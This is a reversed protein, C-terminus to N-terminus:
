LYYCQTLLPIIEDSLHHSVLIVTLEPDSLLRKEIEISNKQDLASTAEDMVIIKKHQILARAIAIRQKQGGSITKASEGIMTELGADLGQIFASLNCRELVEKLLTESVDEFLTINDKISAQFLYPSQEIYAINKLLDEADWDCIDEHDVFVHGKECPLIKLLIKLITTKGCGSEGLVAYKNGIKFEASFDKFVTKEGYTFALHQIVIGAQIRKQTDTKILVERQKDAHKLLSKSARFKLTSSVVTIASSYFMGTLNGQSLLVGASVYKMGILVATVFTSGLQCLIGMYDVLYSILAQFYSYRCKFNLLKDVYCMVRKKFIHKKQYLEYVPYGALQDKIQDTFEANEKSLALNYKENQKDFLKPAFYLVLFAIITYFALYIHINALATFSFILLTLNDVIAYFSDFVNTTIQNMDNTFISIYDGTKKADFESLQMNFFTYVLEEYIDRQMKEYAKARSRTKLYGCCNCLAWLLLMIGVQILANIFDGLILTDLVKALILSSVVMLMSALAGLILVQINLAWHKLVLKKM